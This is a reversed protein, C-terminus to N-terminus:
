QKLELLIRSLVSLNGGTWTSGVWRLSLRLAGITEQIHSVRSSRPEREKTSVSLSSEEETEM